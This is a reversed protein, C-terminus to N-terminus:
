LIFLTRRLLTNASYIHIAYLYSYLLPPFQNQISAPFKTLHNRSIKPFLVTIGQINPDLYRTKNLGAGTSNCLFDSVRFLDCNKFYDGVSLSNQTKVQLIETAVLVDERCCTLAVTCNVLSPRCLRTM